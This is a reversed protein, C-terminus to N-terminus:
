LDSFRHPRLFRHKRRLQHGILLVTVLAMLWGRSMSDEMGNASPSRSSSRADNGGLHGLGGDLRVQANGAVMQTATNTAVSGAMTAGVSGAISGSVNSNVAPNAVAAFSFSVATVALALRILRM